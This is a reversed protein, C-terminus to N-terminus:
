FRYGAGVGFRGLTRDRQGMLRYARMDVDLSLGKWVRVSVGGGLDLVMETAGPLPYRQLPIPVSRGVSQLGTLPFVPSAISIEERVHGVGGGAIFYPTVRELATPVSIRFNTLFMIARGERDGFIVPAFSTATGSDGRIVTNGVPGRSEFTAVAPRALRLDDADSDLDPISNVEIEFGVVRNFRFGFAGTIGWTTDSGQVVFSPIASVVAGSQARAVTPLASMMLFLVLV